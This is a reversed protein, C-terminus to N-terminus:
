QYIIVKKGHNQLAAKDYARAAEQDNLYRGIYRKKKNVMILVQWHHGNRSVGRYRSSRPKKDEEIKEDMQQKSQINEEVEEFFNSDVILNDISNSNLLEDENAEVIELSEKPIISGIGKKIKRRQKKVKVNENRVYVLKNNKISRKKKEFNNKSLNTINVEEKNTKSDNTVEFFSEKSKKKIQHLKKPKVISVNSNNM